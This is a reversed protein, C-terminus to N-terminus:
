EEQERPYVAAAVPGWGPRSIGTSVCLNRGETASFHAGRHLMARVVVKRPHAEDAKASSCVACWTPNEPMEALKPGLWRDLIETNVNHRGGHHPVQFYNIGPLQVGKAELYNAAENLGDRGADGTLLFKKGNVTAFQVVSMENESSTGDAPFNEDGWASAVLNVAAKFAKSLAQAAESFFGESTTEPTKESEVILDLYHDKTPSLVSFPGILAGQLPAKIPIGKEVALDELAASASYISRLKRRLADVSEYNEFRDIIEAAYLWPRNMWLCGVNCKELVVKLGNAHDQDPHTLVVNDVNTTGYLKKIHEVLRDGTELYGGDVIHVGTFGGVSYRLAIADGSKSTEVGLFDIEIYDAM